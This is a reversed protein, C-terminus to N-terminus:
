GENEIRSVTLGMKKLVNMMENPHFIKESLLKGSFDFVRIGQYTNYTSEMKSYYFAGYSAVFFGDGLAIGQRKNYNKADPSADSVIYGSYNNQLYIVRLLDGSVSYLELRNRSYKISRESEYGEILWYDQSMSFQNFANISFDREKFLRDGYLSSVMNYRQLTGTNSVVYVV